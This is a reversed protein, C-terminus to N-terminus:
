AWLKKSGCGARSSSTETKRKDWTRWSQAFSYQTVIKFCKRVAARGFVCRTITSRSIAHAQSSGAVCSMGPASRATGGLGRSGFQPRAAEIICAVSAVALGDLVTSLHDYRRIALHIM